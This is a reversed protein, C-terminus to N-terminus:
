RYGAEVDTPPGLFAMELKVLLSGIKMTAVAAPRGKEHGLQIGVAGEPRCKADSATIM